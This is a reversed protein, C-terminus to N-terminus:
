NPPELLKARVGDSLMTFGFRPGDLSITRVPSPAETGSQAFSPSALLSLSCGVLAAFAIRTM